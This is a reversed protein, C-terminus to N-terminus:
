DIQTVFVYVGATYKHKESLGVPRCCKKSKGLTM